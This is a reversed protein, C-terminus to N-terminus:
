EGNLMCAVYYSYVYAHMFLEVLNGFLDNAYFKLCVFILSYIMLALKFLVHSSIRKAYKSLFEDM